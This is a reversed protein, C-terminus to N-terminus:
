GGGIISTDPEFRQAWRRGSRGAFPILYFNAFIMIFLPWIFPLDQEFPLQFLGLYLVVNGVM